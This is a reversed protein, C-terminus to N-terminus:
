KSSIVSNYHEGLAYYHRHYSLRIVDDEEDGTNGSGEGEEKCIYLPASDASYVVITKDLAIALARLELHGGWESSNRVKEIYAEFTAVGHDSLDAFPEYEERNETLTDACVSRISEHSLVKDEVISLQQAVARYLCNGDARVEDIRLNSPQLYLELIRNIEIDRPSPGANALEKEIAAARAREKERERERKRAKKALAKQKATLENNEPDDKPVSSDTNTDNTVSDEKSQSDERQASSSSSSSALLEEAHRNMMEKEKENWQAEATALADKGKKGKGSTGKIKKLAIRKDSEFAKVEKKHRAKIDEEM